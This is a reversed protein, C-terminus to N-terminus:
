YGGMGGMGGPMGGGPPMPPASSKGSAIVDDIRLIMCASGSAAKVIQEKVVLPEFVDLGAMD